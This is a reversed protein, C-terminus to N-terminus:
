QGRGGINLTLGSMSGMRGRRGMPLSDNYRKAEYDWTAHLRADPIPASRDDKGNPMGNPTPHDKPKAITPTPATASSGINWPANVGTGYLLRQPQGGPRDRTLPPPHSLRTSRSHVAWQLIHRDNPLRIFVIYHSVPLVHRALDPIRSSQQTILSTIRENGFVPRPPLPPLNTKRDREADAATKPDHPNEGLPIPYTPGISTIRPPCPASSSYLTDPTEWRPSNQTLSLLAMAVKHRSPNALTVNAPPPHTLIHHYAALLAPQTQLTPLRVLPQQPARPPRPPLHWEPMSSLSSQSYSVSTFYDSAYTPTSPQLLPSSPREIKLPPLQSPLPRPSIPSTPEQSPKSETLSNHKGNTLETDILETDEVGDLEEDESEESLLTDSIPVYVLGFADDRERRLGENLQVAPLM